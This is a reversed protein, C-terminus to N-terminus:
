CSAYVGLSICRPAKKNDFPDSSPLPTALTPPESLQDKCGGSELPQSAARTGLIEGYYPFSKRGKGSVNNNDRIQVTTNYM